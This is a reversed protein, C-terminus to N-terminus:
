INKPDEKPLTYSGLKMLTPYTHCIKPLPVKKGGGGGGWGHAAGFIGMRLQTLEKPVVDKFRFISSLHNALKLVVEINCQSLCNRISIQLKQKLNSSITGLFALLILQM